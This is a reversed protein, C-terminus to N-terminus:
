HHRRAAHLHACGGWYSLCWGGSRHGGRGLPSNVMFTAAQAPASLFVGLLAIGIVVGWGRKKGSQQSGHLMRQRQSNSIM